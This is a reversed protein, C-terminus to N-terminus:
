RTHFYTSFPVFVVKENTERFDSPLTPQLCLKNRAYDGGVASLYRKLVNIYTASLDRTRARNHFGCQKPAIASLIAAESFAPSCGM